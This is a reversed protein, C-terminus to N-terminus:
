INCNRKLCINPFSRLLGMIKRGLKTIVELIPKKNPDHLSKSSISSPCFFIKSPKKDINDVMSIIKKNNIEVIYRLYTHLIDNKSKKLVNEIIKWLSWKRVPWNLSKILWVCGIKSSTIVTKKKRFLIKKADTTKIYIGRENLQGLSLLNEKAKPIYLIDYIVKLALSGNKKLYSFKIKEVNKALLLNKDTYEINALSKAWHDIFM